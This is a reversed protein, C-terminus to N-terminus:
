RSLNRMAAAYLRPSLVKLAAMLDDLLIMTNELPKGSVTKLFDSDGYAGIVDVAVVDYSHMPKNEAYMYDYLTYLTALKDCNQLTVPANHLESITEKLEKASVM